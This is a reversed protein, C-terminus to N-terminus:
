ADIPDVPEEYGTDNVNAYGSGLRWGLIMVVVMSLALTGTQSVPVQRLELRGHLTERTSM